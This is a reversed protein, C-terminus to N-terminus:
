RGRYGQHTRVKAMRPNMATQVTRTVSNEDSPRRGGATRIVAAGGTRDGSNRAATAPVAPAGTRAPPM